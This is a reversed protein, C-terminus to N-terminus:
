EQGLLCYALDYSREEIFHQGLKLQINGLDKNSEM